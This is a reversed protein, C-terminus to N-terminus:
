PCRHWEAMTEMPGLKTMLVDENCPPAPESTEVAVVGVFIAAVVLAVWLPHVKALM